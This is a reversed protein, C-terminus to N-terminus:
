AAIDIGPIKSVVAGANQRTLVLASKIAVVETSATANSGDSLTCSVGVGALTLDSNGWATAANIAVGVKCVASLESSMALAGMEVHVLPGALGLSFAEAVISNMGIHGRFGLGLEIGKSTEYSSESEPKEVTLFHQGDKSSDKSDTTDYQETQSKFGSSDSAAM